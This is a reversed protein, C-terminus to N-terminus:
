RRVQRDCRGHPFTSVWQFAGQWPRVGVATMSRFRSLAHPRVATASGITSTSHSQERATGSVELDGTCARRRRVHHLLERQFRSDRAYQRGNLPGCYRLRWNSFRRWSRRRRARSGELGISEIRRPSHSIRISSEFSLSECFRALGPLRM